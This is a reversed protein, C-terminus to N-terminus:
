ILINVITKEIKKFNERIKGKNNFHELIRNFSFPLYIVEESDEKKEEEEITKLKSASNQSYYANNKSL